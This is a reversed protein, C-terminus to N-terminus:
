GVPRACRRDEGSAVSLEVGDLVRRGDFAVDVDSVVLESM